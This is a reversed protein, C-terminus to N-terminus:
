EALHTHDTFTKTGSTQAFAAGIFRQEPHHICYHCASFTMESGMLRIM